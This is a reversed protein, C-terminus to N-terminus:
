INSGGYVAPGDIGAGLRIIAKGGDGHGGVARFLDHDGVRHSARYHVGLGSRGKAVPEELPLGFEVTGHVDAAAPRSPAWLGVKPSPGRPSPSTTAASMPNGGPAIGVLSSISSRHVSRRANEASRRWSPMVRPSSASPPRPSYRMCRRAPTSAFALPSTRLAASNTAVPGPSVSNRTTSSM